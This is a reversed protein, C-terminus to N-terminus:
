YVLLVSSREVTTAVGNPVTVVWPEWTCTTFACPLVRYPCFPKVVGGFAAVVEGAIVAVEAVLCAAMGTVERCGVMGAWGAVGPIVGM